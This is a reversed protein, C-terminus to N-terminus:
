EVFGVIDMKGRAIAVAPDVQRQKITPATLLQRPLAAMVRLFRDLAPNSVDGRWIGCTKALYRRECDLPRFSVGSVHLGAASLPVIAAGMGSGVMSLIAHANTVHQILRPNFGELYESVLDHLYLAGDRDYMIFARNDFDSASLSAERLRADHAPLAAVLSETALPMSSLAATTGAWALGFDLRGAVLAEAQQTSPMEHLVLAVNPLQARCAAVIQPMLTYGASTTFGLAITGREGAAVQRTIATGATTAQLIRRADTLFARGPRTLRVHKSERELLQVGLEKELLRIQRRFPSQTMNMEAAASAFHLEEAVVVFCRLQKLDFM